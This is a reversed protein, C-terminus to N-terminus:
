TLVLDVMLVESSFTLVEGSINPFMENGSTNISSLNRPTSWNNGSRECQYLDWGGSGGEMDSAFILVNGDASVTPYAVNYKEEKNYNFYRDFEWKGNNLKAEAMLLNYDNNKNKNESNRTYIMRTDSIFSVVGNHYKGNLNGPLPQSSKTEPNYEYINSYSRGTWKDVKGGQDTTYVLKDGYYVPSFNSTGSSALVENINFKNEKSLFTTMQNCSKLLLLGDPESKNIKLYKEAQAKAEEVRGLVLLVKGYRLRQDSNNDLEEDLGSFISAALQYQNTYLYCDALRLSAQTDNSKELYKNYYDIADYYELKDYARDAKKLSKQAFACVGICLLVLTIYNKM